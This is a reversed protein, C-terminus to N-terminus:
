RPCRFRVKESAVAENETPNMLTYTNGDQRSIVTVGKAYSKPGSGPLQAEVLLGLAFLVVGETGLPNARVGRAESLLVNGQKFVFSQELRTGDTDMLTATRQVTVYKGGPGKLLGQAFLVDAPMKSHGTSNDFLSVGKKGPHTIEFITIAHDLKTHLDDGIWYGAPHLGNLDCIQKADIFMCVNADLEGHLGHAVHFEAARM